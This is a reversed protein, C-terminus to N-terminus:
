HVSSRLRDESRDAAEWLAAPGRGRTNCASRSLGTLRWAPDFGSAHALFAVPGSLEEAAIRERDAAEDYPLEETKILITADAPPTYNTFHKVGNQDTWEYIDAYLPAAMFCSVTVFCFIKLGKM